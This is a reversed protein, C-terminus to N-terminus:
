ILYMHKYHKRLEDTLSYVTGCWSSLSGFKSATVLPCLAYLNNQRAYSNMKPDESVLRLTLSFSIPRPVCFLISPFGCTREVAFLGFAITHYATKINSIPVLFLSKNDDFTIM